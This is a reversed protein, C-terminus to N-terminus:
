HEPLSAISLQAVHLRWLFQLSCWVFRHDSSNRQVSVLPFRVPLFLQTPKCIHPEFSFIGSGHHCSSSVNSYYLMLLGCLLSLSSSQVSRQIGKAWVLCVLECSVVVLNSTRVAKFFVRDHPLYAICSRSARTSLLLVPFTPFALTYSSRIVYSCRTQSLRIANM